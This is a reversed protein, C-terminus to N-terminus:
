LNSTSTQGLNRRPTRPTPSRHVLLQVETQQHGSTTLACYIDLTPAIRDFRRLAFRPSLIDKKVFTLAGDTM